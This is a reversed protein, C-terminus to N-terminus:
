CPQIEARTDRGRGQRLKQRVNKSHHMRVRSGVGAEREPVRLARLVESFMETFM